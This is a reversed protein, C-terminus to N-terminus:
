KHAVANTVGRKTLEEYACDYLLILDILKADSLKEILFERKQLVDSKYYM